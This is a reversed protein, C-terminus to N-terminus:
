ARRPRRYRVGVSLDGAYREAFGELETMERELRLAAQEVNEEPSVRIPEGYAMLVRAGPKPIVFRDWSHLRWARTAGIAVPVIPVGTRQAALVCGPQVVRAPGRPGDPTFGIDSGGRLARLMERWAAAGGRSSSGRAAVYGFRSVTRAILEGDRHQSIMFVLRPGVYSYVMLLLHAHWFVHIYRSRQEALQEVVARGHVRLRVSRRIARILMAALPPALLSVIGDV